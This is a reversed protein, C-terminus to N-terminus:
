SPELSPLASPHKVTVEAAAFVRPTTKLGAAIEGSPLAVHVAVAVAVSAYPLGTDPSVTPM